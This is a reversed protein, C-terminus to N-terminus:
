IILCRNSCALVLFSPLSLQPLRMCEHMDPCFLSLEANRITHLWLAVRMVHLCAPLPVHAVTSMPQVRLLM